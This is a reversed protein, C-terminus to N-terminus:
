LDPEKSWDFPPAPVLRITPKTPDARDYIDAYVVRGPKSPEWTVDSHDYRPRRGAHLAAALGGLVLLIGIITTM